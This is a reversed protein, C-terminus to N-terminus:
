CQSAFLNCLEARKTANSHTPTWFLEEPDFSNNNAYNTIKSKMTKYLKGNIIDQLRLSALNYCIGRHCSELLTGKSYEEFQAAIFLWAEKETM